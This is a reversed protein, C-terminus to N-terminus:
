GVRREESRDAIQGGLRQTNVNFVVKGRLVLDDCPSLLDHRGHLLRNLSSVGNIKRGIRVPLSLGNAPVEPLLEAGGFFRDMAYGKVLNCLARHPLREIM